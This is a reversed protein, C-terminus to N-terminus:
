CPVGGDAFLDATKADIEARLSGLDSYAGKAIGKKLDARKIKVTSELVGLAAAIAFDSEGAQQMELLKRQQSTLLRQKSM